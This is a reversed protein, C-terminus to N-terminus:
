LSSLHPSVSFQQVDKAEVKLDLGELRFSNSSLLLSRCSEPTLNSHAPSSLGCQPSSARLDTLTNEIFMFILDTNCQCYNQYMLIFIITNHNVLM